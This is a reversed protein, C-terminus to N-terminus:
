KKERGVLMWSGEFNWAKLFVIFIAVRQHFGKEAEPFNGGPITRMPSERGHDWQNVITDFKGDYYNFQSWIPCQKSVNRWWIFKSGLIRYRRLSMVKGDRAFTKLM